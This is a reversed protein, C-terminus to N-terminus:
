THYGACMVILERVEFMGNRSVFRLNERNQDMVIRKLYISYNRQMNSFKVYSSGPERGNHTRNAGNIPDSFVLNRLKWDGGWGSQHNVSTIKVGGHAVIDM